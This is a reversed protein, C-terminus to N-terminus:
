TWIRGLGSLGRNISRVLAAEAQEMAPKMFPDAATGKHWVKRAFIVKGGIKFRLFKGRGVGHTPNRVLKGARRGVTHRAGIRGGKPRSAGWYDIPQIWHAKTKEEVFKAYDAQAEYGGMWTNEKRSVRLARISKRLWGTRNKFNGGRKAADRGEKSAASVANHATEAIHRHTLRVANRFSTTELKAWFM